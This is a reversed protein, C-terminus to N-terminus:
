LKMICYPKAWFLKQIGVRQKENLIYLIIWPSLERDYLNSGIVLCCHFLISFDFYIIVNPSQNNSLIEYFKM